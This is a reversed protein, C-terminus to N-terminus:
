DAFNDEIKRGCMPCYDPTQQGQSDYGYGYREVEGIFRWHCTTCEHITLSMFRDDEGIDGDFSSIEAEIEKLIKVKTTEM